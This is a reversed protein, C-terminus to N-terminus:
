APVGVLSSIRDFVEQERGKPLDAPVISVVFIPANSALIHSQGELLGRDYIVGRPAALRVERLHNEEARRRYESGEVLQLRWLQAALVVFTLIVTLRFLVTALSLRGTSELNENM